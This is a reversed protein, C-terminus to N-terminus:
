YERLRDARTEGNKKDDQSHYVLISITTTIHVKHVVHAVFNLEYYNERNWDFGISYKYAMKICCTNILNPRQYRM